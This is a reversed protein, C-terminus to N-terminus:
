QQPLRHEWVLEAEVILPGADPEHCLIRWLLLLWSQSYGLVALGEELLEQGLVGLEAVRDDADRRVVLRVVGLEGGLVAELVREHAVDVAVDDLEEARALAPLDAGRVM